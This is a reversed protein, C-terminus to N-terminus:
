SSMDVTISGMLPVGTSVNQPMKSFTATRKLEDSPTKADARPGNSSTLMSMLMGHETSITPPRRVDSYTSKSPPVVMCNASQPVSENPVDTSEVDDSGGTPRFRWSADDKTTVLEPGPTGNVVSALTVPSRVNLTQENRM